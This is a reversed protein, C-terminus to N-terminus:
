SAAAHFDKDGACVAHEAPGQDLMQRRPVLDGGNAALLAVNRLSSGHLTLEALDARLNHQVACRHRVDVTTFSM